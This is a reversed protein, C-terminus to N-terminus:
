RHRPKETSRRGAELLAITNRLENVRRKSANDIASMLANGDLGTHRGLAAARQKRSLRSYAPIRGRAAEELARASAAHLADGDSHHLVFEGTGRIQEALSRRGTETAAALPGFRIGGRWLILAITALSLMVVPAGHRWILSLLSPHDDESLFYLEDGRRLQTAAVFLRGHDGDFLNQYRFPLANIVTVSGKGVAVRVVQLGAQDRLAWQPRRETTLLTHPEGGCISFHAGPQSPLMQAEETLPTCQDHEHDDSKDEDEEVDERIGSWTEFEARGNLMTDVVLRGGSSVWRELAIRREASLDWYWASLVIVADNSPIVLVRDRVARAGLEDALKQAAYFPNTLAEGKLPMPVKTDEWYTNSAIWAIVVALLVTVSAAMIRSRTM